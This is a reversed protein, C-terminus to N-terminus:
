GKGYVIYHLPFPGIRKTVITYEEIAAKEMIRILDKKTLLNMYDGAAWGKGFFRIINDFKRKPLWHVLPFNTHIEIPFERAPTTFYFSHGARHLESVFGVQDNENGVHEIVANSIVISFEKDAFPFRGGSYIVTKVKPYRYPFEKLPIISLATINEPYPYTKEFYNDFPSYEQDAVGVDLITSGETPNTVSLLHSYKEERSKGMLCHKINSIM